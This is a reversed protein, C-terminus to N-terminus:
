NQGIMKSVDAIHEIQKLAKRSVFHAERTKPEFQNIATYRRVTKLAQVATQLDRQSQILAQWLEETGACCESPYCDHTDCFYPNRGTLPEIYKSQRLTEGCYPCKLESTM